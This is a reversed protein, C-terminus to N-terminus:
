PIVPLQIDVSGCDSWGAMGDRSPNLAQVRWVGQNRTLPSSIVIALEDKDSNNDILKNAAKRVETALRPILEPPTQELIDGLLYAGGGM